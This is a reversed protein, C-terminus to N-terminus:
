IAFQGDPKRWDSAIKALFKNSAIGASATLGVEERIRGRIEEALMLPDNPGKLVETVDLFAEDLSLGEVLPTYEKFIKFIKASEDKYKSFSSKVFVLHPCLKVAQF